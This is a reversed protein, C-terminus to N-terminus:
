AQRVGCVVSFPLGLSKRVFFLRMAIGAAFGIVFGMALGELGYSGHLMLAAGIATLSGFVFSATSYWPNGVLKLIANAVVRFPALMRGALMILLLPLATDAHREGYLMLLWPGLLALVVVTVTNTLLLARAMHHIETRFADDDGAANFRRHRFVQRIQGGGVATVTDGGAQSAQRSNAASGAVRRGNVDADVGTDVADNNGKVQNARKTRITDGPVAVVGAIGTVDRSFAAALSGTRIPCLIAGAKRPPKKTHPEDGVTNAVNKKLLVFAYLSV